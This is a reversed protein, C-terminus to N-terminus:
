GAKQDATWGLRAIEQRCRGADTTWFTIGSRGNPLDPTIGVGLVGRRVRLGSVADRHVVITRERLFRVRITMADRQLHMSAFPWSAAFLGIWVGGTFDCGDCDSELEIANPAVFSSTDLRGRRMLAVLVLAGWILACTGFFQLAASMMEGSVISPLTYVKIARPKWPKWGM